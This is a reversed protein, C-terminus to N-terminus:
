ECTQIVKGNVTSHDVICGARPTLPPAGPVQSAPPSIWGIVAKYVGEGFGGIESLCVVAIATVVLTVLVAYVRRGWIAGWLDELMKLAGQLDPFSVM